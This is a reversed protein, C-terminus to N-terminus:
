ELIIPLINVVLQGALRNGAYDSTDQFITLRYPVYNQLPVEPIINFKNGDIKHLHCSVESNQETNVLSFYINQAPVMKNFEIQFTPLLTEVTTGDGPTHSIIVLATTDAPLTNRFQASDIATVNGKKDVFDYVYLMYSVTDPPATLISLVDNALVSDVVSLAARDEKNLIQIDGVAQLPETFKAEIVQQTLPLVQKLAPKITDQLSLELPMFVRPVKLGAPKEAWSEKDVDYELNDNIDHFASLLYDGSELYDFQFAGNARPTTKAVLLSDAASYLSIYIQGKEPLFDDEFSISGTISNEPFEDATSFVFHYVDKLRNTRLDRCNRDITVYYTTSPELPELIHITVSKQSWDFKERGIPPWINFAAEFSNQEVPESFHIEIKDMVVNKSLHSPVTHVIEPPVTDVPGGTPPEEKGCSLLLIGLWLFILFNRIKKYRQNM